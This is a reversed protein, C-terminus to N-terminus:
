LNGWVSYYGHGQREQVGTSAYCCFISTGSSSSLVCVSVDIIHSAEEPTVHYKPSSAWVEGDEIGVIASQDVDGMSHLIGIYAQWSM